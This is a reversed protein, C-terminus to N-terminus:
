LAGTRRLYALELEYQQPDERRMRTLFEPQTELELEPEEEDIPDAASVLPTWDPDDSDITQEPEPDALVMQPLVMEEAQATAAVWAGARAFHEAPATGAVRLLDDRVQDIEEATQQGLTSFYAEPDQITAFQAPLWRSWHAMAMSGYRNM